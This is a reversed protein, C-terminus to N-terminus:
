EETVVSFNFKSLKNASIRQVKPNESIVSMGTPLSDTDLKVLFQKGKKNLVWQDPVHYRGYQDTEIVIGEVTLLRVGPVGDEYVGRNEIVIEWVYENGKQYLHRSVHLKEAALGRKVDGHVVSHAHGSADFQIESGDRSVVSFAFGQRSKTKFLYAIHNSKNLTRNLSLGRLKGHSVGYILPSTNDADQLTRTVGQERIHTSQAIYDSPDLDVKLRVDFATADAQYGDQNHDEFVKGIISATDFLKDPLIDVTATATNSKVTLAGSTHGAEPALAWASNVYQGFTAGIGVRLLYRVRIQETTTESSAGYALMDGLTFSLQNTVSPESSIIVDDATGFEGDPGSNTIETSGEVYQFASPYRDILKVNKFESENNNQVLVEYEIVDGVQADTKLAQKSVSLQGENDAFKKVHVTVSDSRSAGTAPDTVTFVNTIDDDIGKNIDGTITFQYGNAMYPQLDLSLGASPLMLDQNNLTAVPTNSPWENIEITWNSFLPNGNAGMLKSVEDVMQAGIVADSGRNAVRLVYTIQQDDNTYEVDDGQSTTKDVVLDVARPTMRVSSSQVQAANVRQQTKIEEGGRATSSAQSVKFATNVIEGLARSDTQARIIFEVTDHPAITLVSNLDENNAGHKSNIQTRSDTYKEEITWSTFANIVRRNGTNLDPATQVKIRSLVDRVVVNQAFGQSDNFLTIHYVAIDGPEYVTNEIQKEFSVNDAAPTLTANAQFRQVGSQQAYVMTATNEIEGLALPNVKGRVTFVVSDHPALNIVADIDNNVGVPTPTVTTLENGFEVEVDWREFASQQHGEITSVSLESLTDKLQIGSAFASSTNTVVIRYVSDSGPEYVTQTESGAEGVFKDLTLSVTKPEIIATADSRKGDFTLSATNSIIGTAEPNIEGEITITLTDNPALDVQYNADDNWGAVHDVYTGESGYAVSQHWRTFTPGKDGDLLEVDLTTLLDEIMVDNAYSADHNTVTIVFGNATAPAYHDVLPTKTITVNPILPTTTVQSQQTEGDFEASFTNTVDGIVQAKLKGGITITVTDNPAVDLQHDVYGQSSSPLLTMGTKSVAQITISNPEFATITDGFISESTVRNAYDVVHVDTAWAGTTNTLTLTYTLEDGSEYVSKDVQKDIVIHADVPLYSASAQTGDIHDASVKVQNTIEGIANNAVVGVLHLKLHASPALHYYGIFGEPDDFDTQELTVSRSVGSDTLNIYSGEKLWHDIVKQEGISDVVQSKIDKAIDHITLNQVYGAGINEIEIDFGITDGPEYTAPTSSAVKSVQLEGAQPYIFHQQLDYQKNNVYLVNGFQGVADDRVHGVIEIKLLTPEDGQAHALKVVADIDGSTPLMSIDNYDASANGVIQSSITWDSLATQQAGDVTEVTYQSVTDVLHVEANSESTNAILLTYRVEGGPTYTPTDTSKNAIIQAEGQEVTIPNSDVGGVKAVNTISGSASDNVTGSVVFVVSDGPMLDMTADLPVGGQYQGSISFREGAPQQTMSVSQSTFAIDGTSTKISSLKDVVTVDNAIGEGQNSIIVEYSVQGGPNYLCQEGSSSPFTCAGNDDATTNILRKEFEIQPAVSPISPTAVHDTGGQAQNADIEGLADQRITGVITFEIQEGPAIDTVLNIDGSSDYTPLYTDVKNDIGSSITHTVQWESFASAMAGGLVEVKIDSIADKIVANDYWVPETNNVSLRYVVREGPRYSDGQHYARGGISVIAKEVDLKADDVALTSRSFNAGRYKPTVQIDSLADPRIQANVTFEVWGGPAISLNPIDIDVDQGGSFEGIQTTTEDSHEVSVTWHHPQYVVGHREDSEAAAQQALKTTIASFTEQLSAGYETGKGQNEVRLRYVVSQEEELHNYHRKEQNFGADSYAKHLKSINAGLMTAREASLTHAGNVYATNQIAGVAREDVKANIIYRVFTQGSSFSSAAIDFQTDIDANDAVKGADSLGSEDQQTEVTWESFAPGTTGDFYATTISSLADKISMSDIHSNNENVLDIQYVIYGGPTYGGSLVTRGDSDLYQTLTKAFQYKETAASSKSSVYDGDVKLYNYIDGVANANVKTTVVYDLTAGAPLSFHTNIDKGDGLQSDLDTQVADSGSVNAVVTWGPQFASGNSGDLLSVNVKSLNDEIPIQYAPGQGDNKITLHYTLTGDPQYSAQEVTKNFALHYDYPKITIGGITIEGAADARTDGEVTYTVSDKGAIDIVTDINQNNAVTGDLVGDTTGQGGHSDQKDVTVTFNDSFVHGLNGDMLLVNIDELNEQVVRNNEYGVNSSHTVTYTIHDGPTYYQSEKGNVYVKRVVDAGNHAKRMEHHSVHSKQNVLEFNQYIYADNAIISHLRGSEDRTGVVNDKVRARIKFERQEGADLTFTEGQAAPYILNENTVARWGSGDGYDFQWSVFPNQDELEVYHGEKQNALVSRIQTLPDVLKLGSVPQSSNNLVAITYIADAGPTFYHSDATKVISVNLNDIQDGVEATASMNLANVPDYVEVTNSVETGIYDEKVLGRVHFSVHGLGESTRPDIDIYANINNNDPYGSAQGAYSGSAFPSHHDDTAATIVWKSFANMGAIDDSVHVENAYGSGRNYVTIDFDVWEGPRFSETNSLKVVVVDPERPYVVASDSASTQSKSDPTEITVQNTFAGYLIENDISRDLQAEITYVVTANPPIQALTDLDSNDSFTGVDTYAILEPNDSEAEARITWHTFAPKTQNDPELLSATVSSIADKVVVNTAYGNGKPNTVRLQYSITHEQKAYYTYERRYDSDSNTKVWKEVEIQFDRPDVGRDAYVNGDVTVSNKINGNAYPNVKAVITYIVYSNPEITATVDLPEPSTMSNSIGTNTASAPTGDQHLAKATVTWESFASVENGEIGTTTINPLDDFVRVQNAFGDGDNDVRITYTLEGNPSYYRADVDKSVRLNDDPMQIGSGSEAVNDSCGAQTDLITGISTSSVEATLQYHISKGPAIDPSLTLPTTIWQGYQFRGPDSGVNDEGSVVELKWRSFAPGVGAGDAQETVVCSLDDVVQVNNAFYHSAKNEVYIDYTVADGPIYESRTTSKEIRVESDTASLVKEASLGGTLLSDAILVKDSNLVRANAGHLEGITVPSLTAVIQYDIRENPYITVQDDLSVDTGDGLESLSSSSHEGLQNIQIHWTSFPQGSVDSHDHDSALNNALGLQTVLDAINHQVHYQHAIGQGDNIVSVDFVVQDNVLYPQTQNITHTLSIAPLASPTVLTESQQSGERTVSHAQTVIEGTINDSVQATIHYTLTGGVALAADTVALDSSADFSGVDSGSGSQTASINVSHFAPQEGSETGQTNVSVVPFDIDLHQVKYSGTNELTLTYNLAQGVQYQTKDARLTLTYQYPAPQLAVHSSSEFQQESGDIEAWVTAEALNIQEIVDDSAQAEVHYTVSGLPSLVVSDAVLDSNSAEFVGANSLWGSSASIETTKFASTLGDKSYSQLSFVDSQVRVNTLRQLTTNRVTIQYHVSDNNEYHTQNSAVSVTIEGASYAFASFVFFFFSFFWVVLTKKLLM